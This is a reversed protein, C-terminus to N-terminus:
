IFGGKGLFTCMLMKNHSNKFFFQKTFFLVYFIAAGIMSDTCVFFNKQPESSGQTTRFPGLAINTTYVICNLHFRSSDLKIYKERGFTSMTLFKEM